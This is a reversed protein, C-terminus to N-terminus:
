SNNSTLMTNTDDASIKSNDRAVKQGYPTLKMNGVDGTGELVEHM